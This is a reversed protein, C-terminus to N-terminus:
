VEDQYPNDLAEEDYPRFAHRNQVWSVHNELVPTRYERTRYRRQSHRVRQEMIAEHKNERNTAIRVNGVEYAGQDHRCCMCMQFSGQGRKEWHPEWLEWWQEFSLLFPIGRRKAGAKHQAYRTRPSPTSAPM